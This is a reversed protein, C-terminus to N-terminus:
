FCVSLLSRSRTPRVSRTLVLMTMFWSQRWDNKVEILWNRCNLTWTTPETEHCSNLGIRAYHKSYIWRYNTTIRAQLRIWKDFLAKEQDDPETNNFRNYPHTNKVKILKQSAILAWKRNRFLVGHIVSTKKIDTSDGSMWRRRGGYQEKARRSVEGVGPLVFAKNGSNSSIM